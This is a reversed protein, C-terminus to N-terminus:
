PRVQKETKRRMTRGGFFNRIQMRQLVHVRALHDLRLNEKPDWSWYYGWARNAWISGTHGDVDVASIRHHDKQPDSSGTSTHRSPLELDPDGVNEYGAAAPLLCAHRM